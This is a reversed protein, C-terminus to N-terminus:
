ETAGLLFHHPSVPLLWVQGSGEVVVKIGTTM